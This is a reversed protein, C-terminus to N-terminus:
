YARHILYDVIEHLPQANVPTESLLTQCIQYHEALLAKAAELGLLSPFTVKAAHLDSKAPKGLTKTPATVDLIDDQIQFALGLHHAFKVLKKATLPDSTTGCLLGFSVSAEILKGTKLHHMTTLAELSAPAAEPSVDIFQGGAMGQYGSSLSLTQILSVKQQDTYQDTHSLIEFALTQLADGALIATAEDFAIHCAPQGRRLADDDMAPLDDHILSFAHILEVAMAAPTCTMPTAGMANGAAYVLAARIRKGGNLISYRMAKVLGDTPLGKFYLTLANHILEQYTALSPPLSSM